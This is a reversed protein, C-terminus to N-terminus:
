DKPANGDFDSSGEASKNRRTMILERLDSILTESSRSSFENIQIAIAPDNGFLRRCLKELRWQALKMRHAARAVEVQDSASKLEKDANDLAALSAAVQADQWDKEANRLLFAYLGTSAVKLSAAIDEISEDALFRKIVESPQVGALPNHEGYASPYSM